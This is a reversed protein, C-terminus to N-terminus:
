TQEVHTEQSLQRWNLGERLFLIAGVVVVPLTGVIHFLVAVAVSTDIDFGYYTTLVWQCVKHFGGVGGPTPIAIGVTTAATLFLSSDFPLPRHAAMLVFWFQSTLAFWICLTSLIVLTFDRPRKTIQLTGAFADFFRMWPERFRQPLFGGLWGHLRRVSDGFFRFALILLVLAALISGAVIAGGHVVGSPFDNWRYVCFFAFLSLISVLDLVRETLVTGLAESFRVNTRRALLAPRAVDGARIPLITSLMYGMTNAFFTPYFRPKSPHLLIRWRVTRFFLASANVCFGIAFWVLNTSLLIRWVDRLNSKWLFFALFFITLVAVLTIQLIRKM